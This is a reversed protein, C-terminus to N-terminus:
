ITLSIEPQSQSTAARFFELQRDNLSSIIQKEIARHPANYRSANLRSCTVQFPASPNGTRAYGGFEFAIIISGKGDATDFTYRCEFRWVHLHDRCAIDTVFFTNELATGSLNLQSVKDKMWTLREDSCTSKEDLRLSLDVLKEFQFIENDFQSTFKMLFAIREANNFSNFRLTNTQDKHIFGKSTMSRRISHTVNRTALRTEESTHWNEYKIVRRKDDKYINVEAPFVQESKIWSSHLNRRRIEFSLRYHDDSQRVLTPNGELECSLLKDKVFHKISITDQDPLADAFSISSNANLEDYDNRVKKRDERTIAIDMLYDFEKPTLYTLMLASILVSKDQSNIFTGRSRLLDKLVTASIYQQELLPLLEQGCPLHFRYTLPHQKSSM